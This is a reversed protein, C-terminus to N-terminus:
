QEKEKSKILIENRYLNIPKMRLRIVIVLYDQQVQIRQVELHESNPNWSRKIMMWRRKLIKKKILENFDMAVDEDETSIFQYAFISKIEVSDQVIIVNDEIEDNQTYYSGHNLIM